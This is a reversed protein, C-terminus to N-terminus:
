ADGGAMAADLERQRRLLDFRQAFGCNICGYREHPKKGDATAPCERCVGRCSWYDEHDKLADKNIRKQTDPQVTTLWSAPCWAKTKRGYDSLEVRDVDEISAVKAATGYSYGCLGARYCLADVDEGCDRAHEMTVWVTMGEELRAGNASTAPPEHTLCDAGVYGGEEFFTKGTGGCPIMVTFPGEGTEAIYVVDGVSIPEGAADRPARRRVAEGTRHRGDQRGKRKGDSSKSSNFYYGGRTFCIRSIPGEGYKDPDPNPDGFRVPEGSDEYRPLPMYEREIRDAIWLFLEREMVPVWAEAMTEELALTTPPVCRRESERAWRRLMESVMEFPVSM